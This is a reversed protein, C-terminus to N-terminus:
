RECLRWLWNGLEDESPFQAFYRSAGGSDGGYARTIVNGERGHHVTGGVGQKHGPLLDGSKLTGSQGDLVPVLCGAACSWQSDGERCGERHVLVTNSPWRGPPQVFEGAGGLRKYRWVEYGDSRDTGGAAYAGGNLNDTTSVRCADINLGGAGHRAVTEIVTGELPERLLWGVRVGWPGIQLVSDRVEIGGRRAAIGVNAGGDLVRYRGSM